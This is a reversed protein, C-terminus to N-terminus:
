WLFFDGPQDIRILFILLRFSVNIQLVVAATKKLQFYFRFSQVESITFHPQLQLMGSGTVEIVDDPKRRLM